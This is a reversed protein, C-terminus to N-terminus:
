VSVRIRSSKLKRLRSPGCWCKSTDRWVRGSHSMELTQAEGFAGALFVRVKELPFSSVGHATLKPRSICMLPRALSSTMPKRWGHRTRSLNFRRTSATARFKTRRSNPIHQRNSSATRMRGPGEPPRPTTNRFTGYYQASTWNPPYVACTNFLRAHMMECRLCAVSERCLKRPLDFSRQTTEISLVQIDPM